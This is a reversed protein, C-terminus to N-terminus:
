VRKIFRIIELLHDIFKGDESLQAVARQTEQRLDKHESSNSAELQQLEAALAQERLERMRLLQEVRTAWSEADSKDLERVCTALQEKMLALEAGISVIDERPYFVEARLVRLRMSLYQYGRMAPRLFSLLVAVASAYYGISSLDWYALAYFAAASLVHLFLALALAGRSLKEVYGLKSEDFDINRERSSAAESLLEKSEFYINWPVTIVLMLWVFALLAVFWDVFSGVSIGFLQLLGLAILILFVLGSSFSLMGAVSINSESKM